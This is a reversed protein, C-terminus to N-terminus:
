QLSIPPTKVKNWIFKRRIKNIAVEICKPMGQVKTLFQTMGRIFIKIILSKGDLTPNGKNLLNLTNEIKDIIPEWPTAEDLNDGIWARLSRV